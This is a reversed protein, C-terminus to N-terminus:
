EQDITNFVMDINICHKDNPDETPVVSMPKLYVKRVIKATFKNKSQNYLGKTPIKIGRYTVYTHLKTYVVTLPKYCSEIHEQVKCTLEEHTSALADTYNRFLRQIESADAIGMPLPHKIGEKIIGKVKEETTM